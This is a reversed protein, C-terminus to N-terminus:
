ERMLQINEAIAKILVEFSAVDIEFRSSKSRYNTDMFNHEISVKVGGEVKELVISFETNLAIEVRTLM